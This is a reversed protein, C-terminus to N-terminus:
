PSQVEIVNLTTTKHAAPVETVAKVLLGPVEDSYWSRTKSPGAETQGKTDYWRTEYTKGAADLKEEGKGLAGRPRGVEEKKVGPLLPFARRITHEQAEGKVAEGSSDTEIVEEVVARSEDLERLTRRHTTTVRGGNRAETVERVVVVTGVKHKSWSRYIPSEVGESQASAATLLVIPFLIVCRFM